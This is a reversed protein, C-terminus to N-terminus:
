GNECSRKIDYNIIKECFTKDKKIIGLCRNKYDELQIIIRNGGESYWGNVFYECFSTNKTSDAIKFVCRNIEKSYDYEPHKELIKSCIKPDQKKEAIQIYCKEKEYEIFDCINEDSELIALELYCANREPLQGIKSCLIYDRNKIAKDFLEANIDHPKLSPFILIIIIPVVFFIIIIFKSWREYKRCLIVIIVTFIFLSLIISITTYLMLSLGTEDLPLLSSEGYSGYNKFYWFTKSAVWFTLPFSALFSIFINKYTMNGM